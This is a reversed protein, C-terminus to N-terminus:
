SREGSATVREAPVTATQDASEGGRISSKPPAPKWMRIVRTLRHGAAKSRFYREHEWEVEAMTLLCDILEEHGCERAYIAAEEYEVINHRELRGAGYMPM